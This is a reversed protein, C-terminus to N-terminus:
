PQPPPAGVNQSGPRGGVPLALEGIGTTRILDALATGPLPSTLAKVLLRTGAPSYAAWQMLDDKWPGQLILRATSIGGWISGKPLLGARLMDGVVKEVDGPRAVSSAAFLMEEPTPAKAARKAERATRVAGAAVERAQTGAQRTAAVQAMGQQTSARIQQAGAVRAAQVTQQGATRAQEVATKGATKAGEVVREAAGRAQELGTKEGVKATAIGAEGHEVAQKWATSIAQLNALVKSGAEDSKFLVDVFEPDLKGLRDGLSDIPGSLVNKHTWASRLADWAQLGATPEGGVASQNVLLDHLMRLKTPQNGKVMGVVAEPNEVALKRLQPAMGKTYLPAIQAYRSTAANYPGFNLSERLGTRLTKTINTVRKQVSRDWATGIAEDLERKFQHAAHFPVEDEANLIRSLVGMAPHKLVAQESEGQMSELVKLVADASPGGKAQLASMASPSIGAAAAITEASTEEPLVRPFATAPPKIERELIRRAEAKLGTIDVPPGQKAAEEVAQGAMDRASRAPGEIVDQTMRGVSSPAPPPAGVLQEFPQAAKGQLRQANLEASATREAGRTAATSKAFEGAAEASAIDSEAIGRAREIGTRAVDRAGRIAGAVNQRTTQLATRAVDRTQALREAAGTSIRRAQAHATDLAVRLSDAVAQRKATLAEAAYRGVRSAILRRGAARIPWLVAQGVAEYTAQQAGAGVVRSLDPPANGILQEFKEEAAGALGAGTSPAAVALAPGAVPVAAAFPAVIGGIAGGVGGAINRRGEMRRPDVGSWWHEGPLEGSLVSPEVSPPPQAVPGGPKQIREAMSKVPLLTPSPPPAGVQPMAHTTASPAGQLRSLISQVYSQTEPFDPIGGADAVAGPGANYSALALSVDGKHRELQQRLYKLGGRINQLPDALDTVGMEQATQPMLQFFGRAGKKSTADPNWGSEQEVLAFALEPPVKAAQAEARM